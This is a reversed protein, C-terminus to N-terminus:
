AARDAPGAEDAACPFVLVHRTGPPGEVRLEGGLQRVFGDLLRTGAGGGTRAGAPPLGVGDDEVVLRARHGDLRSLAIRVRGDTRSGFAHKIANLVLETVLLGLALGQGPALAVEEDVAVEIRPSGGSAFAGALEGALERLYAGAELAEGEDRTARFLQRHVLAMSRLREEAEAVVQRAVPDSLRRTQIAFVGEMLQFSNMVRHSMERALLENREALREKEALVARLEAEARDREARRGELEDMHGDFAAGLAELEGDSAQMGTRARDDGARRAALVAAIRAVPGRVLRQGLLWSLLGAALAAALGMALTRRTAANMAAFAVERAIGASIYLGLPRVSVPVYGLIRKTGDQSTVELTGPADGQVLPEFEEPIPTGVFRDPEPERALITGNRDAITLSGQAALQRQRVLAGLWELDMATVVVGLPEGDPGPVARAFPLVAAGSVRSETYDGVVLRGRNALAEAFYPRDSLDMGRTAPDSSCVAVGERDLVAFRTYHPLDTWLRALFESCDEHDGRQVVPAAAIARLIGDTGSTLRELELAAQEATARALDHVELARSRRLTVENVLIAALIPVLAAATIALVRQALSLRM